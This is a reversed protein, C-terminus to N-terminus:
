PLFVCDLTNFHVFLSQLKKHERRENNTTITIARAAIIEDLKEELKTLSQQTHTSRSLVDRSLQPCSFEVGGMSMAVGCTPPFYTAGFCVIDCPSPYFYFQLRILPRLHVLSRSLSLALSFIHTRHSLMHHNHTYGPSLLPPVACVAQSESVFFSFLARLSPCKNIVLQTSQPQAQPRATSPQIEVPGHTISQTLTTHLHTV